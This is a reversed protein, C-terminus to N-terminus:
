DISAYRYIHVIARLKHITEFARMRKVRTELTVLFFIAAGILVVDNTGAELIQIFESLAVSQGDAVLDVHVLRAGMLTVALIIVVFCVSLVRMWLVPRRFQESREQGLRAVVVLDECLKDFESRPIKESDSYM